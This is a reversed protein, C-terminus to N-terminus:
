SEFDLSVLLHPAGSICQSKVTAYTGTLRSNAPSKQYRHSAVEENVSSPNRSIRGPARRCRGGEPLHGIGEAQGEQM